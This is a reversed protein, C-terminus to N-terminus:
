MRSSFSNKQMPSTHPFPTGAAMTIATVWEIRRISESCSTAGARITASSLRSAHRFLADPVNTVSKRPTSSKDM